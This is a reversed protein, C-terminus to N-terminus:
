TCLVSKPDTQSGSNKSFSFVKQQFYKHYLYFNALIIYHFGHIIGFLANLGMFLLLFLRFLLILQCFYDKGFPCKSNFTWIWNFNQLKRILVCQQTPTSFLHFPKALLSLYFDIRKNKALFIILILFFFNFFFFIRYIYSLPLQLNFM